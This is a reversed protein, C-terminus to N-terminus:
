EEDEEEEGEAEQKEGEEGEEEEEEGTPDYIKNSITKNEISEKWLGVAETIREPLYTRAFLASESFRKSKVLVDFCKGPQNTVYYCQFAVNMRGLKEAKEALESLQKPLSLSSYILLLGNFDNIRDYCRIAM